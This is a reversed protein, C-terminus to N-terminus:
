PKATKAKFPQTSGGPLSTSSGVIARSLYLTRSTISEILGSGRGPPSATVDKELLDGTRASAILLQRYGTQGTYSIGIGSRGLRDARTGLVHVDPVYALARYALARWKDSPASLFTVLETWLVLGRQSELHRVEQRWVKINQKPFSKLYLRWLKANLEKPTNPPRTEWMPRVDINSVSSPRPYERDQIVGTATLGSGLHLLAFRSKHAQYTARDKPSAFSFSDGVERFRTAGDTANWTQTSDTFFFAITSKGIKATATNEVKTGIYEWQGSGPAAGRAVARAMHDLQAAAAPPVAFPLGATGSGGGLTEVGVLSAAAVAATAAAVTIWRRSVRARRPSRQPAHRRAPSTLPPRLAVL